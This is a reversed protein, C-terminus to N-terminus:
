NLFTNFSTVDCFYDVDMKVTYVGSYTNFFAEYKEVGDVLEQTKTLTIQYENYVEDYSVGLDQALIDMSQLEVNNRCEDAFTSTISLTIVFFLSILAKM